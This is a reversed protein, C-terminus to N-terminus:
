RNVYAVRTISNEVIIQSISGYDIQLRFSDTLAMNLAHALLTRIVGAHTLIVLNQGAHNASVEQLFDKARLSLAHFSEGSPPAQMVHDDAWVDVLGRPIDNWAMLEWDGFHLEMLRPDHQVECGTVSAIAAALQSCRKLPSSYIAAPEISNLKSRVAELEQAFTAAVEIDSQGYCIGPLIDPTTHRVLYLNM